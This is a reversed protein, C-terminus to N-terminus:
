YKKKWVKAVSAATVDNLIAGGSVVSCFVWITSHNRCVFEITVTWRRNLVLVLALFCWCPIHHLRQHLLRTRSPVYCALFSAPALWTSARGVSNPGNTRAHGWRWCPFDTRCNAASFSTDGEVAHRMGWVSRCVCGYLIWTKWDRVATHGLFASLTQPPIRHDGVIVPTDWRLNWKQNCCGNSREVLLTVVPQRNITPQQFHL